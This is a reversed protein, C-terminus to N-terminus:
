RYEARKVMKQIEERVIREVLGPLHSDLWAKLHPSITERVLADLSGGALDSVRGSQAEAELSENLKSISVAVATATEASVLGQEPAGAPPPVPLADPMEEAVSDSGGTDLDIRIDEDEQLPSALGGAPAAEAEIAPAPGTAAPPEEPRGQGAHLDVVSGDEAVMRTLELPASEENSEPKPSGGHDEPEGSSGADKTEDKTEDETEDESIIKRISALIEEMTPENGSDADSM